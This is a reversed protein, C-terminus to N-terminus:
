AGRAGKERPDAKRYPKALLSLHDRLPDDEGMANDLYGSRLLIPLGPKIARVQLALERGSMGGPMILDTFLLEFEQTKLAELAENGNRVAVVQNDLGTLQRQVLKQVLDDDDVLLINEGASEM